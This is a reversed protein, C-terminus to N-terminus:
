CQRVEGDFVTLFDFDIDDMSDIKLSIELTALSRGLSEVLIEPNEVLVVGLYEAVLIDARETPLIFSFANM